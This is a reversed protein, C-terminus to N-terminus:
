ILPLAVWAVFIALALVAQRDIKLAGVTMRPMIDLSSNHAFSCKAILM